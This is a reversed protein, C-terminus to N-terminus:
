WACNDIWLGRAFAAGAEPRLSDRLEFAALWARDDALFVYCADFNPHAPGAPPLGCLEQCFAETGIRVRRGDVLAEIGRGPFSRPAAVEFKEEGRFARAVPHRSSAELSRALDLCANEGVAGLRTVEAVSLRDMISTM